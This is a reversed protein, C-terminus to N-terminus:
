LKRKLRPFKVPRLFPNDIDMNNADSKKQEKEKNGKEDGEKDGGGSNQANQPPPNLLFLKM